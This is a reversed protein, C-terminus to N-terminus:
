SCFVSFTSPPLNATYRCYINWHSLHFVFSLYYQTYEDSNSLVYLHVSISCHLLASAINLFDGSQCLEGTWGPLCVCGGTVRDCRGGNTCSCVQACDEGYYGEECELLSLFPFWLHSNCRLSLYLPTKGQCQLSCFSVPPCFRKTRFEGLECAAGTWGPPCSCQGTESDCSGGNQCLCQGSCHEGYQGAACASSVHFVCCYSSNIVHIPKFFELFYHLCNCLLSIAIVCNSVYLM